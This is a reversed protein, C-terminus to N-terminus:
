AAERWGLPAITEGTGSKIMTLQPKREFSRVWSSPESAAKASEEELEIKLRLGLARALKVMSEITLNADGRFIKTIYAQSTKLREALDKQKVEQYKCNAHLHMAFELKAEEVWYTDESKASQLFHQLEKSLAM